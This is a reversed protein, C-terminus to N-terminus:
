FRIGPTLLLHFPDPPDLNNLNKGDYPSNIAATFGVSLTIAAPNKKADAASPKVLPFAKGVIFQFKWYQNNGLGKDIRADVLTNLLLSFKRSAFDIRERRARVWLLDEILNQPSLVHRYGFEFNWTLNRYVSKVDGKLKIQAELWPFPFLRNQILMTDGFTLVAGSYAMGESKVENGTVAFFGELNGSESAPPADGKAFGPGPKFRLFNGIFLSFAWPERYTLTLSKVLNFSGWQLNTYTSYAFTRVMMGSWALPYFSAELVIARPFFFHRLLERYIDAEAMPPGKNTNGFPTIYFDISSYYLDLELDFATYTKEWVPLITGAPAWASLAAALALGRLFWGSM